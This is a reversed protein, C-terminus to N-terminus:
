STSFPPIPNCKYFDEVLSETRYSYSGITLPVVVVSLGEAKKNKNQEGQNLLTKEELEHLM